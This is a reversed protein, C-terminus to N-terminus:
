PLRRGRVAWGVLTLLLHRVMALAASVCVAFLGAFIQFTTTEDLRSQTGTAAAFMSSGADGVFDFTQQLASASPAVVDIPQDLLSPAIQEFQKWMYSDLIAQYRQLDEPDCDAYHCRDRLDRVMLLVNAYRALQVRVAADQHQAMRLSEAHTSAILQDKFVVNVSAYAVWALFLFGLATQLIQQAPGLVTFHIVENSRHYIQREPFTIGIFAQVALVQRKVWNVVFTQLKYLWM